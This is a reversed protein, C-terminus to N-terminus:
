SHEENQIEIEEEIQSLLEKSKLKDFLPTCIAYRVKNQVGYGFRTWENLLRPTDESWESFQNPTSEKLSKM